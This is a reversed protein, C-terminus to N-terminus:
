WRVAVYCTTQFDVLGRLLIMPYDFDTFSDPLPFRYGFDPLRYCCCFPLHPTFAYRSFTVLIPPLLTAHTTYRGGFTPLHTTHHPTVHIHIVVDLTAFAYCCLPHDVGLVFLPLCTFPLPLRYITYCVTLYCCHLYISPTVFNWELLSTFTFPTYDPLRSCRLDFSDICSRGGFHLLLTTPVVSYYIM